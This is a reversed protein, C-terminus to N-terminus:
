LQSHDNITCGGKTYRKALAFGSSLKIMDATLLCDEVCRYERSKVIQIKKGLVKECDRIFRISDEHQDDIDIYIWEDISDRKLWGAVFSSVGASIWCVTLKKKM